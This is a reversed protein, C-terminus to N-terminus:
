GATLALCAAAASTAAAAVPLWRRAYGRRADDGATGAGDLALVTAVSGHRTALSGASLGVVAAYGAPGALLGGLAAGAPLNNVAAALAGVGLAVAVAAEPGSAAHVRSIGAIRAAETLAGATLTVALCIRWPVRIPAAAGGAALRTALAAACLPWWPAIGLWPAALEGAAAASLGALACREDRSLPRRPGAAAPQMGGAPIRAACWAAALGGAVLGPVLMARTYALPSIGLGSMVVVNVPNGQPFAMSFGNAVGITGALLPALGHGRRELSRLAPLMVVVAGDLSVLGTLMATAACVALYLRGPSGGGARELVGALRAALGSREGEAALWMAAALFAALTLGTAAPTALM